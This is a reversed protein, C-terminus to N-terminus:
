QVYKIDRVEFFARKEHYKSNTCLLYLVYYCSFSFQLLSLITVKESM